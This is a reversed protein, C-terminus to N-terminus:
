NAIFSFFTYPHPMVDDPSMNSPASMALIFVTIFLAIFAAVAWFAPDHLLKNAKEAMEHVHLLANHEWTRVTIIPHMECRREHENGKERNM